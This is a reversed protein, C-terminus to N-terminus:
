EFHHMKRHESLFIIHPSFKLESPKSLPNGQYKKIQKYFETDPIDDKVMILLENSISIWGSDFAWHHLRCLCIGNRLDDSGKREKPFIHASQVEPKGDPSHLDSGCIACRESYLKKIMERFVSDRRILNVQQKFVNEILEPSPDQSIKLIDTIENESNQYEPHEERVAKKVNDILNQYALKQNATKLKRLYIVFDEIGGFTSLRDDAVKYFKGRPDFNESYKLDELFEIWMYNLKETDFFFIYPYKQNGWLAYSLDPLEYREFVKVDCLVPIEGKINASEVLLVVDGRELNRIVIDAGGPVGWCNFDGSPFNSRLKELIVNKIPETDPISNEVLSIPKKSFITKKFDETAGIQGVHHYFLKM